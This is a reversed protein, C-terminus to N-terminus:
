YWVMGYWVMGYWVMGYWVMGYWVMGYWVMGYWVMGYWVMTFHVQSTELSQWMSATIEPSKAFAALTELICGKLSTPISCGLLGFMSTLPVWAPNECIAIRAVEDQVNFCVFSCKAFM